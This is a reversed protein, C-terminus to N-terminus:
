IKIAVQTEQYVRIGGVVSQADMGLSKVIGKIKDEDVKWYTRSILGQNVIDFKWIKKNQVGMVKEQPVSTIIPKSQNAFDIIEKAEEETDAESAMMVAEALLKKKAEEERVRTEVALRLEEADTYVKMKQKISAKAAELPTTMEKKTSCAKKHASYAAAIMPDFVGEIKEILAMIGKAVTVAYEYQQQNTIVVQRATDVVPVIENKFDM